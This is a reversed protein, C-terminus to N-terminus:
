NDFEVDWIVIIKKDRLEDEFHNDAEDISCDQRIEQMVMSALYVEKERHDGYTGVFGVPLAYGRHCNECSGWGPLRLLLREKCDECRPHHKRRPSGRRPLSLNLKDKGKSM